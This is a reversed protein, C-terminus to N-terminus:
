LERTKCNTQCQQQLYGSGAALKRVTGFAERFWSLNRRHGYHYTKKISSGKSQHHNVKGHSHTAPVTLPAAYDLNPGGLFPMVRVPRVM